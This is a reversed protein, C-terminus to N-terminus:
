TAAQEAAAVCLGPSSSAQVHLLSVEAPVHGVHIHFITKDGDRNEPINCSPTTGTSLWYLVLRLGNTNARSWAGLAINGTICSRSRYKLQNITAANKAEAARLSEFHARRLLSGM